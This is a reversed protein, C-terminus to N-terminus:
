GSFYLVCHSPSTLAVCAAVAAAAVVVMINIIITIIIIINIRNMIITNYKDMEIASREAHAM